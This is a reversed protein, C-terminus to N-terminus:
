AAVETGRAAARDRQYAALAAFGAAVEQLEAPGIQIRHVGQTLVAGGGGTYSAQLTLPPTPAPVNVKVTLM